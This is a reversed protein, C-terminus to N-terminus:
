RAIAIGTGCGSRAPPPEREGLAKGRAGERGGTQNRRGQLAQHHRDYAGEKMAGIATETSAFATIMIVISEPSVEHAARLLDLGSGGPMQIDTIVVDFDDEELQARATELDGATAVLYGERRFFIELFEQMSREDDVVLIRAKASM